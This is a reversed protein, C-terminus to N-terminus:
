EYTRRKIKIPVLVSDGWRKPPLPDKLYALIADMKSVMVTGGGRLREMLASDRIAAWGIAEETVWPLHENAKIFQELNYLLWDSTNKFTVEEKM